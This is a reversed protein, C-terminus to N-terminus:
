GNDVSQIAYDSKLINKLHVWTNDCPGPAPVPTEDQALVMSASLTVAVVLVALKVILNKMVGGGHSPHRFEERVHRFGFLSMFRKM